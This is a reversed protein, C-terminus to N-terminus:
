VTTDNQATICAQLMNIPPFLMLVLCHSKCDFVLSTSDKTSCQCRYPQIYFKTLIINMSNSRFRNGKQKEYQYM